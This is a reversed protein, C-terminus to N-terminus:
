VCVRVLVDKYFWGVAERGEVDVPRWHFTITDYALESANSYDEPRYRHAVIPQMIPLRYNPGIRPKEPLKEALKKLDSMLIPFM